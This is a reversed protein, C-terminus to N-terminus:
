DFWFQVLRWFCGYQWHLYYVEIESPTFYQSGALLSITEPKLYGYGNPAKYSRGFNTKSPFITANANDAIGLDSFFGFTPGKGVDAVIAAEDYKDILPAKFPALGDKNRLSFIFSEPATKYGLGIIHFNLSSNCCVKKRYQCTARRFSLVACVPIHLHKAPPHPPPTLAPGLGSFKSIQLAKSFHFERRGPKCFGCPNFVEGDRCSTQWVIYHQINLFFLNCILYCLLSLEKM